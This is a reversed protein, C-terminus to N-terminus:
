EGWITKIIGQKMIFWAPIFGALIASGILGLTSSGVTLPQVTLSVLGISLDLPYRVFYPQLLFRVALWGFVVGFVAYLLAQTLYSGIIAGRQIGIARLIGIEH